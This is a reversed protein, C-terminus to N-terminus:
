GKVGGGFGDFGELSPPFDEEDDEEQALYISRSFAILLYTVRSQTM